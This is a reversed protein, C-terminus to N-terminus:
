FQESLCFREGVINKPVTLSFTKWPFGLFKEIKCLKNPHGLIKSDIFPEGCTKQCQSVFVISLIRIGRNDLFSEFLFVESACVPESAIIKPSTLCFFRFFTIGRNDFFKQYWFMESVCFPRGLHKEAIQSWFVAVSFRSVGKKNM